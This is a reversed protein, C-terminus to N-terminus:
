GVEGREWLRQALRNLVGESMFHPLHYNTENGSYKGFNEDFYADILRRFDGENEILTGFHNYECDRFDSMIWILTSLTEDELRPHMLGTKETYKEFYHMVSSYLEDAIDPEYDSYCIHKVSLCMNDFEASKDLYRQQRTKKSKREGGKPPSTNVLANDNSLSKDKKNQTNVEDTNLQTHNEVQQFELPLNEVEQKKDEQQPEEYVNYEYKFRGNNTKDPTQKDVVVYGYEKLEKLASKVATENEKCIACLGAISYDWTDPLSLMVSLLGKAKLTLNTDRLHTNSMVTFNKNKHVRIVSM